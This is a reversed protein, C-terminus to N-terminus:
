LIIWRNMSLLPGLESQKCHRQHQGVLKQVVVCKRVLSPRLHSPDVDLFDVHHLHFKQVLDLEAQKDALGFIQIPEVTELRPELLLSLLSSSLFTLKRSHEICVFFSVLCGEAYIKSPDASPKMSMGLFVCWRVKLLSICPKWATPLSRPASRGLRHRVVIYWPAVSILPSVALQLAADRSPVIRIRSSGFRSIRQKAESSVM